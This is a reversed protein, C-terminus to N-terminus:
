QKILEKFCRNGLFTVYNDNKSVFTNSMPIQAVSSQLHIQNYSDYFNITYM